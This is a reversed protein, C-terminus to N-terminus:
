FRGMAIKYDQVAARNKFKSHVHVAHLIHPFVAPTFSIFLCNEVVREGRTLRGRVVHREEFALQVAQKRALEDLKNHLTINRTLVKLPALQTTVGGFM